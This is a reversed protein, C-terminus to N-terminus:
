WGVRDVSTTHRGGDREWRSPIDTVKEYTWVVNEYAKYTRPFKHKMYELAADTASMTGIKSVVGSVGTSARYAAFAAILGVTVVVETNGM